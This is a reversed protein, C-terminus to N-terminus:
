SAAIAPAAAPLLSISANATATLDIASSWAESPLVGITRIPSLVISTSTKSRTGVTM